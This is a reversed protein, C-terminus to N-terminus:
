QMTRITIHHSIIVMMVNTTQLKPGIPGIISLTTISLMDKSHRMSGCDTSIQCFVACNRHNVCTFFSSTNLKPIFRDQISM